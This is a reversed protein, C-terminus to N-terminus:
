VACFHVYKSLHDVLVIIIYKNDYKPLGMIFDVYIDTWLTTPTPLPQIEGMPKLKEGKHRQFPDREAVFTIIDKKVSGLFIIIKDKWM